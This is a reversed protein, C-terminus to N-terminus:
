GGSVGQARLTSQIARLLPGRQEYGREDIESWVASVGVRCRRTLGLCLTAAINDRVAMEEEDTWLRGRQWQRNLVYPHTLPQYIREAWGQSGVDMWFQYSVPQNAMLFTFAPMILVADERTSTSQGIDQASIVGEQVLSLFVMGPNIEHRELNEGLIRRFKQVSDILTAVVTGGTLDNEFGFGAQSLIEGFLKRLFHDLELGPSELYNVLWTRLTDYLQGLSYTLREQMQGKLQSFPELWPPSANPKYLIRAFLDARVPDLEAICMELMRGVDEPTPQQKWGPHAIAALTLLSRAAAEQRIQRSPRFAIWQIGREDLKRGLLFRVSDSLYPSVIAIERRPIQERNLLTDVENAIWELSEPLHRHVEVHFANLKAGTEQDAGKDFHAALTRGLDQVSASAVLNEDFRIQGTCRSKLAYADTPDAGLFRRFGAETDFVLLASQLEPLWAQILDHTRPADEEINDALMHTAIQERYMKFAPSPLIYRFFVEVQLSFDLMNMELCAHRFVRACQQADDYIRKQDATGVWAEGLRSGIEEIPFGVIAAKNLNDLIQRYLQNRDIALGNFAGQALMPSIANALVYTATELTLFSPLTSPDSFGAEGAYLPWFLEATRRVLGGLTLINIRGPNLDPFQELLGIYPRALSRQPVIILLKEQARTHQLLRRARHVAATTKGSGAPGELFISGPIPAEVLDIQQAQLQAAGIWSTVMGPYPDGMNLTRM